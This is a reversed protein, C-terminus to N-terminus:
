VDSTEASVDQEENSTEASVDNQEAYYGVGAVRAHDDLSTAQIIPPLLNVFDGEEGVDFFYL